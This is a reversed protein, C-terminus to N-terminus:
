LWLLTWLSWVGVTESMESKLFDDHAVHRCCNTSNRNWARFYIMVIQSWCVSVSFSHSIQPEWLPTTSSELRSPSQGVRLIIASYDKSFDTVIQWDVHRLMWSSKVIEFVDNIQWFPCYKQCGILNVCVRTKLFENHHPQVLEVTLKAPWDGKRTNTKEHLHYITDWFEFGGMKTPVQAPIHTIQRNGRTCSLLWLRVSVSYYLVYM